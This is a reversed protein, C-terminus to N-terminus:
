IEMEWREVSNEEGGYTLKKTEVVSVLSLKIVDEKGFNYKM